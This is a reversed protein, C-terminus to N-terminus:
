REIKHPHEKFSDQGVLDKTKLNKFAILSFFQRREFAVLARM